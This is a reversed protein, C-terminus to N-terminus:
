AADRGLRPRSLRRSAGTARRASRGVARRRRSQGSPRFLAREGNGPHLPAGSGSQRWLRQLRPDAGRLRHTRAHRRRTRDRRWSHPRGAEGAATRGRAGSPHRHRQDGRRQAASRDTGTRHPDAPWAHADGFPRSLQLQRGCRVAPRLPGGAMRGATGFGQAVADVVAPDAEGNAKRQIDAAFLQPDDAIGKARQFRTGAAPILGASLATSGAPVADREIVVPM